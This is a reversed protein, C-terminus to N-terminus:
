LIHSSSSQASQSLKIIKKSTDNRKYLNAQINKKINSLNKTILFYIGLRFNTYQRQRLCM